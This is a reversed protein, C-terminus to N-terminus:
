AAHGGTWDYPADHRRTDLDVLIVAEDVPHVGAGECAPCECWVRRGDLGPHGTCIPDLGRGNCTQCAVTTEASTIDM